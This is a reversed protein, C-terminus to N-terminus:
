WRVCAFREYGQSAARSFTGRLVSAPFFSMDFLGLLAKMWRRIGTAVAAPSVKEAQTMGSVSGVTTLLLWISLLAADLLAVEFLMVEPLLVM